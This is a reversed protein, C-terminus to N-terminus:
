KNVRQMAEYNAKQFICNECLIGDCDFLYGIDRKEDVICREKCLVENTFRPLEIEKEILM